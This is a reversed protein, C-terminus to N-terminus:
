HSSAWPSCYPFFTTVMLLLKFVAKLQDEEGKKEPPSGAESGEDEDSSEVFEASKYKESGRGKKTPSKASTKSRSFDFVIESIYESFSLFVLNYM